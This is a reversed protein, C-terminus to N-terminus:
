VLLAPPYCGEDSGRAGRHCRTGSRKCRRAVWLKVGVMPGDRVCRDFEELSFALHNPNLYVFGLARDRWRRVARMVQDNQERLEQTSPNEVLKYGLSLM